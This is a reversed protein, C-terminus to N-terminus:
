PVRFPDGVELSIFHAISATMDAIAAVPVVFLVSFLQRSHHAVPSLGAIWLPGGADKPMARAAPDATARDANPRSRPFRGAQPKCIDNASAYGWPVAVIPLIVWPFASTTDEAPSGAVMGCVATRGDTLHM